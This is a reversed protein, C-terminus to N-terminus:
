GARDCSECVWASGVLSMESGCSHCVVTGGHPLWAPRVHLGRRPRHSWADVFIACVVGLTITVAVLAALFAADGIIGGAAASLLYGALAVAAGHTM